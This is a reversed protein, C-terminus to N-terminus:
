RQQSRTFDSVLCGCFSGTTDLDGVVDGCVPGYDFRFLFASVSASTLQRALEITPCVVSADGDPLVIAPNTNGDFRSLPYIAKV